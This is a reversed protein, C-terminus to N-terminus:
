RSHQGRRYGSPSIGVERQFMRGFYSADSFGVALAVETINSESAELLVRAQNIRYRNLYTMLSIGLVQHFCNTLYNEHVSVYRAIQERTIPETYHEHIYAMAKTVVQRAAIRSKDMRFLTMSIREMTEGTSFIGKELVTTVGRNLRILEAETLVQGTLVTVPIDRTSERERLADLVGFGDLVPMMLDLLILDPLKYELIELAERGNRAQLVSCGPIQQHILRSHVELTDVDDDVLLITVTKGEHVPNPLMMQIQDMDLPKLRYDLDLVAGSDREPQWEYFVIATNQSVPREKFKRIIEWAQPLILRRDLLLVEPSVEVLIPFWDQDHKVVRTIINIGKAHLYAKMKEGIEARDTLLLTPQQPLLEDILNATSKVALIPLIFSFTSGQGEVGSSYAGIKGRHLEILQKSVSLGLGLGSYGYSATRRSQQFENFIISQDELPIGVGTDSVSVTVNKEDAEISFTVSGKPTFKVANAVFNLAVQRLRTRDGWVTPASTPVKANWVLGQEHALQEGTVLVVQMAEVLDLPECSLRLQGADSSALDLVDRILYGLHEASAYIRRLDEMESGSSLSNERLLLESLGVIINLPTRLEHSVTSLFRSKLTNAEEAAKQREEALRWGQEAERRAVQAERHLMTAKVASSIQIRLAQFLKKDLAKGPVGTEFVVFGLPEDRFYLAEVLFCYPEIRQWAVEPLLASSIFSGEEGSLSIKGKEDYGLALRAQAVPKEPDEYLVVYGRPIGLHPLERALTAMLEEMDLSTVLAAWLAQLLREIEESRLRQRAQARWAMEGVMVRAQHWLNDATTITKEDMLYPLISRRLVSLPEQWQEVVGGEETVKGLVENLTSLFANPVGHELENVLSNFLQRTLHLAWGSAGVSKVMEAIIVPRKDSLTEALGKYDDKQAPPKPAVEVAAQSVMPLLCGCSQRVVLRAPVIIQAPQTEGRMGGLLLEVAQAGMEFFPPRITTLPITNVGAVELDDFGVVAVEDPVRIGRGQLITIAALAAEDNVAAVADFDYRPRLAREELFSTFLGKAEELHWGQPINTVLNPDFPLKYEALADIYARLREQAGVFSAPGQMFVIRRRHHQDVLHAIVERMGHYDDKVVCPISGFQGELCVVPMAEFRSLFRLMEVRSIAFGISSSLVVLGDIRQRDILEYLLNEQLPTGTESQLVGGSFCILNVAHKKATDEVGRLVSRDIEDYVSNFLFGITARKPSMDTPKLTVFNTRM